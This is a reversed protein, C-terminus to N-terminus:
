WRPPKSYLNPFQLGQSAEFQELQWDYQFLQPDQSYSLSMVFCFFLIYFTKM